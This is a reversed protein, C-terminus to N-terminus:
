YMDDYQPISKKKKEPKEAIIAETMLLLGAVSAANELALRVVKAPDIIGVKIM